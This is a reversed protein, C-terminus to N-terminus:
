CRAWRPSGTLFCDSRSTVNNITTAFMARGKLQHASRDDARRLERRREVSPRPESTYLYVCPPNKGGCQAYKGARERRSDRGASEGGGLTISNTDYYMNNGSQDRLLKANWGIVHMPIGLSALTQFESVNLESIRLLAKGGAPINIVSGCRSRSTTTATPRSHRLPGPDAVTDPYSRGNLLFYKDKM